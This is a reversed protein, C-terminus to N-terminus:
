AKQLTGTLVPDGGCIWPLDIKAKATLTDGQVVSDLIVKVTIGSVDFVSSTSLKKPNTLSTKGTAEISSAPIAAQGCFGADITLGDGLFVTGEVVSGRHTMDLSMAAESGDPAYVTGHFVGEYPGIKGTAAAPAANVNGVATVAMLGFLAFLGILLKKM